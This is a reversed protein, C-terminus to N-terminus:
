TFAKAHKGKLSFKRPKVIEATIVKFVRVEVTYYKGDSKVSYTKHGAHDGQKEIATIAAIREAYNVAHIIRIEKNMNM